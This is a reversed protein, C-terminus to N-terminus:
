SVACIKLIFVCEWFPISKFSRLISHWKGFRFVKSVACFQIDSGFRFVKSVACFQIDSGFRFVKSVACFQSVIIIVCRFPISGTNFSRLHLSNSPDRSGGRGSGRRGHESTCTKTCWGRRRGRSLQQLSSLKTFESWLHFSLQCCIIRVIDRLFM